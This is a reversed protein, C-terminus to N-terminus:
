CPPSDDLLLLSEVKEEQRHDQQIETMWKGGQGSSASGDAMRLEVVTVCRSADNQFCWRSLMMQVADDSCRGLVM